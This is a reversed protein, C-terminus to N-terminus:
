GCLVSGGNVNLVEGSIHRALDSALFLIPGAVDDPTAIRRLPISEVIRQRADPNAQITAATMETDVWGPAVCNARIGAPGLETALSKTLSIVAGKSAAYDAHGAEGRQGATSSVTVIVGSRRPLFIRVAERCLHYVGDLNVRMTQAWQQDSLESIPREEPPWVGANGVVVDLQGFHNLSERFLNAVQEPQSMDAGLALTSCGFPEAAAAVILAAERQQHYHIVLGSAGAEAFRIATAAGIGRSAGSILVVKGQFDFM